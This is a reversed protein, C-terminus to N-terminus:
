YAPLPPALGRPRNFISSRRTPYDLVAALFALYKDAPELGEEKVAV